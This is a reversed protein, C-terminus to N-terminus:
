NVDKLLQIVQQYGTELAGQVTQHHGNLNMAEGAFYLQNNISQAALSRANGIGVTSYSYAGKIYPEKSWDKVLGDVYNLTAKGNYMLDLEELLANIIAQNSTLASLKEAQEGMIFAMLVHESTTKGIIDNVYAACTSGGYINDHYFKQNFKLFVKMGFGMGIKAVADQKQKPLEPTFKIENLKLISIPVTIIVKDAMFVQNSTTTIKIATSSYDIEKVAAKLRVHNAISPYLAENIVEFYTQAFKYNKDGSSWNEEEVNTYYVSLLNAAAGYDGAIQEIVYKYENGLGQQNAYTLFSVDPLNEGEFISTNKPLQNVLKGNFWYVAETDDEVFVNKNTRAISAALNNNGHLWQAGLDIPYAAFGEKVALRGGVTDSAELVEFAVKRKKLENAAYLGAAGAGIIVVKGSYTLNSLDEIKLEDDKCSALISSPFLLGGLSFLSTRKIFTRRKMNLSVSTFSLLYLLNACAALM